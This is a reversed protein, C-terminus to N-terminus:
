KLFFGSLSWGDAETVVFNGGEPLHKEIASLPPLKLADLQDAEGEEEEKFVRRIVSALVSDSDKLKGERLLAYKVRLSLKTRAIRSLSVEGAGLDRLADVVRKVEAQAAFGGDQGSGIRQATEILLEAHSSFVLYAEGPTSADEVVAIAWHDLLPPSQEVTEDDFGLDGFIDAEFSADSESGRQVRWVEVGPVAEIQSADPEVEMAKRVAVQIAKANRLRIAVLMRESEVDAPVTNDTLLIVEDGLSPLVNKKLDIQPGDTDDRIGEIMPMFIEDGFAENVLSESAWFSDEINLRIRTVTATEPGVWAPVEAMPGNFFSLMRAAKEYKSPLTTTPPALIFGRHLVDYRDGAIALIGGAAQLADFGQNEILKLIDVQNGRDVQFSERLIRGMQIPRAFWEGAVTSNGATFPGQIARSSRTLVDRFEPLESISPGKMEGAMADLVATVVSDRDSAIIRDDDLTIAIQEVKLQGPKPKVTYVRVVQGRYDLDTRTASNAKLDQDVQELVQDAKARRGRIDAIVCMSFPRRKDKPFPLWAAVAEGSAIEYLDKLKLGVRNDVSDLYAEARERQAEVFPQMAPDNVLNGLHTQQWADCFQPVDPIRLLGALSDPLLKIAPVYVGGAALAPGAQARPEESADQARLTAAGWGLM